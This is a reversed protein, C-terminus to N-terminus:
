PRRSEPTVGSTTSLGLARKYRLLDLVGLPRQTLCWDRYAVLIHLRCEEEVVSM